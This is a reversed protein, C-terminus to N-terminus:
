ETRASPPEKLKPRVLRIGVTVQSSASDSLIPPQYGPQPTDGSAWVRATLAHTSNWQGTWPVSWDVSSGPSVNNWTYNIDSPNLLINQGITVGLDARAWQAQGSVNKVRVKTTFAPKVATPPGQVSGVIAITFPGPM